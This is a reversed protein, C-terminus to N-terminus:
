NFQGREAAANPRLVLLSQPVGVQRRLEEIIPFRAPLSLLKQASVLQQWVRARSIRERDDGQWETSRLQGLHIEGGPRSDDALEIDLQPVDDLHRDRPLVRRQM